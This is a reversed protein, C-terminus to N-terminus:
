AMKGPLKAGPFVLLDQPDVESILTKLGPSLWIAQINDDENLVGAERMIRFMVQRLKACTSPSLQALHENWEAKDALFRDFTEHGLELRWSQYRDQIVEVAFERIFRYTRCVGLWLIAQQEQRDAKEVLFVREAESLYTIRTYIERLSRAQSSLKPLATIGMELLREQSKAWSEGSRYHEALAISENVFLGGTSFSMRYKETKTTSM